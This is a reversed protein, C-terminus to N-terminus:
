IQKGGDKQRHELKHDERKANFAMKAQVAEAIRFGFAGSTDFLRILADAIEEEAFSFEQIHESPKNGKRVGEWGESIEGHTNMMCAAYELLGQRTKVDTNRKQGTTPDIWWGAASAAGHCKNILFQVAQHIDNM